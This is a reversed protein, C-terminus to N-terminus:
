KSTRNLHGFRRHWLQGDDLKKPVIKPDAQLTFAKDNFQLKYIGSANGDKAVAIL